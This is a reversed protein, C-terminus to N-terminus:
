SDQHFYAGSIFLFVLFYFIGLKLSNFLSSIVTNLCADNISTIKFNFVFDIKTPM